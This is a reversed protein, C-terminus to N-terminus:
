CRLGHKEAYKDYKNHPGVHVVCWGNRNELQTIYGRYKRPLEFRWHKKDKTRRFGHLNLREFTQGRIKDIFKRLAHQIDRDIKNKRFLKEVRGHIQIDDFSVMKPGPTGPHMDDVIFIPVPVIPKLDYREGTSPNVGGTVYTTFYEQQAAVHAKGQTLGTASAYSRYASYPHPLADFWHKVTNKESKSLKSLAFANAVAEEVADKPQNMWDSLYTLYKDEKPMDVSLRDCHYQSLYHFYEHSVLVKMALMWADYRSEMEGFRHEALHAAAGRRIFIGWGTESVSMPAYWALAEVGDVEQARHFDSDVPKGDGEDLFVPVPEPGRRSNEGFEERGKWPRFDPYPDKFEVNLNREDVFKEDAFDEEEYYHEYPMRSENPIDFVPPALDLFEKATKTVRIEAIQHVVGTKLLPDLEWSISETSLDVTLDNGNTFAFIENLRRTLLHEQLEMAMNPTDLEDM